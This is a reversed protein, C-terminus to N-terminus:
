KNMKYAKKIYEKVMRQANFKSANFAITNRRIKLYELQDKYYCPVIEKELINYLNNKDGDEEITWGTKNKHSAEPWWGDWTSLQPVGNHAAKMGSTASAENPPIPNNLWLDSGSVLMKATKMSYNSLFAIDLKGELKRSIKNVEAIITKGVVDRSHAKGSYIIQIKGVKKHIEILRKVDYLLFSPRKYPAFRRAFVITFIDEKLDKRTRKNVYKILKSKAKKHAWNIEELPIKAAKKLRSNDERWKPIYKDFVKDMFSSTWFDSAVGNTIHDIKFKPFMERSIKGHKKSVANIYSSFYMALRTFNVKDRIVVEKLHIPFDPQYKLLFEGFFTDHGEPVPTHTTFSVRERVEKIKEENTKKSSNNYLEVVALAGHGENLHIKEINKYGLSKLIKVGARGLVIEQKLRYKLDGGYLRGSLLRSKEKNEKWDTDLLYIPIEIGNESKLSYKWVRVLVSDEGIKIKTKASLLELKSTDSKDSAEEQRGRDTIIQRFYGKKNFLTIGIMPFGIESSARLIDGALIGLGGSFTKVDNDFAIEMSLYAVKYDNKNM